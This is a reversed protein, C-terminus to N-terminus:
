IGKKFFFNKEIESLDFEFIFAMGLFLALLNLFWDKNSKRTGLCKFIEQFQIRENAAVIPATGFYKLVLDFKLHIALELMDSLIKTYHEIDKKNYLNILNNNVKSILSETDSETIETVEVMKKINM